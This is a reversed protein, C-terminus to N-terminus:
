SFRGSIWGVSLGGIVFVADIRLIDLGINVIFIIFISLEFSISFDNLLKFFPSYCKINSFMRMFWRWRIFAFYILNSKLIFSTFGARGIINILLFVLRFITRAIRWFGLFYHFLIVFNWRPLSFIICCTFFIPLIGFTGAFFFLFKRFFCFFTFLNFFSIIVRWFVINTTFFLLYLFNIFLM